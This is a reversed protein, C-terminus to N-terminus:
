WVAGVLELRVDGELGRLEIRVEDVAPPDGVAWGGRPPHGVLPRVFRRQVVAVGPRLEAEDHGHGATRRALHKVTRGVELDVGAGARECRKKDEGSFAALNVAPVA